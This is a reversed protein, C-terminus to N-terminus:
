YWRCYVGHGRETAHVALAAIGTLIERAHVADLETDDLALLQLWRACAEELRAEGAEALAALLDPAVATLVSDDGIIAPLNRAGSGAEPRGGEAIEGADRALFAMEWDDLMGLPDFNGFEVVESEPVDPPGTLPTSAAAMDDAAIFFRIISSM